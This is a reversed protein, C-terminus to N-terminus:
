LRTITDNLLTGPLITDSKEVLSDQFIPKLPVKVTYTVDDGDEFRRGKLYYNDKKRILLKRMWGNEEERWIHVDAIKKWRGNKLSYLTIRGWSSMFWGPCFLLESFGDGDIDGANELAGWVSMEQKLVPLKCSFVIQNYCNNDVCDTSFHVKGHQDVSAITPPTYIFAQDPVQDGNIDGLLVTDTFGPQVEDHYIFEDSSEKESTAKEKVVVKPEQKKVSEGCGAAFLALGIGVLVSRRM